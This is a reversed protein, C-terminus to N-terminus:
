VNNDNHYDSLIETQEAFILEKKYRIAISLKADLASCVDFLDKLTLNEKGEEIALINEQDLLTAEAVDQTTFNEKLRIYRLARGLEELDIFM